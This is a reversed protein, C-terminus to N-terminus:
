WHIFFCDTEKGDDTMNIRIRFLFDITETVESENWGHDILNNILDIRSVTLKDGSILKGTFLCDLVETGKEVLHIDPMNWLFYQEGSNDDYKVLGTVKSGVINIEEIYAGFVQFFSCLFREICGKM